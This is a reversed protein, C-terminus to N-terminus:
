YIMARPLGDDVFLCVVSFDEETVVCLEAGHNAGRTWRIGFIVLEANNLLLGVMLATFTNQVIVEMHISSNTEVFRVAYCILLIVALRLLLKDQNISLHLGITMNDMKALNFQVKAPLLAQREM